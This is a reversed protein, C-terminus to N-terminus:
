TGLYYYIKFNILTLIKVLLLIYDYYTIIKKKKIFLKLYILKNFLNSWKSSNPIIREVFPLFCM